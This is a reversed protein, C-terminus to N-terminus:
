PRHRQEREWRKHQKSLWLGLIIVATVKTLTSAALENVGSLFMVSETVLEIVLFVVVVLISAM